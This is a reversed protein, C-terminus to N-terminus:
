ARKFANLFLQEEDRTGLEAPFATFFTEVDQVYFQDAETTGFHKFFLSIHYLYFALKFSQEDSIVVESVLTALTEKMQKYFPEWEKLWNIDEIIFIGKNQKHFKKPLKNILEVRARTSAFLPRITKTPFIRV